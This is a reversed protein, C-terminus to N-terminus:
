GSTCTTAPIQIPITEVVWKETNGVVQLWFDHITFTTMKTHQSKRATPTYGSDRKKHKSLIVFFCVRLQKPHTCCNVITCSLCCVTYLPCRSLVLRATDVGYPHNGNWSFTTCQWCNIHTVSKGLTCMASDSVGLRLTSRAVDRAWINDVNQIHSNWDSFMQITPQDFNTIRKIQTTSEKQMLRSPQLLVCVLHERPPQTWGWQQKAESKKCSYQGHKNATMQIAPPMSSFSM